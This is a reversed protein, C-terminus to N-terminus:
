LITCGTFRPFTEGAKVIWGSRITIHRDLGALGFDIRYRDGFEDRYVLLADETHAAHLLRGRFWEADERGIGLAARFVRAKHKGRDHTPDLVYDTLKRIDVVALEANPLLAM